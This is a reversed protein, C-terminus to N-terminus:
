YKDFDIKLFAELDEENELGKAYELMNNYLENGYKDRYAL